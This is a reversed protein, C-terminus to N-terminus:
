KPAATLVKEKLLEEASPLLMDTYPTALIREIFKADLGASMYFKRLNSDFAVTREEPGDGGLSKASSQHFGILADKAMTRDKGSLFILTCASACLDPVYTKLSRKRVAQAMLEAAVVIGGPSSLVVRELQPTNQVYDRFAKISAFDIEGEVVLDKGDNELRTTFAWSSNGRPLRVSPASRVPRDVVRTSPKPPANDMKYTKPAPAAVSPATAPAKSAPTALTAPSKAPESIPAKVPAEPTKTPPKPPLPMKPAPKTDPVPPAVPGPKPQIKPPPLPAQKPGSPQPASPQPASSQAGAYAPVCCLAILGSLIPTRLITM